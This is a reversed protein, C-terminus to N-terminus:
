SPLGAETTVRVHFGLLGTRYTYSALETALRDVALEGTTRASMSLGNLRELREGASRRRCDPEGVQHRSPASSCTV